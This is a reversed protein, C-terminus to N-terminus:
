SQIPGEPNQDSKALMGLNPAYGSFLTGTVDKNWDCVSMDIRTANFSCGNFGKMSSSFAHTDNKTWGTQAIVVFFTCLGKAVVLVFFQGCCILFLSGGGEGSWNWSITGLGLIPFYNPDVWTTIQGINVLWTKILRRRKISGTTLHTRWLVIVNQLFYLKLDLGKKTLNLPNNKPGRNTVHAKM